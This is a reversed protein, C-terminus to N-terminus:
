IELLIQLKKAWNILKDRYNIRYQQMNGQLQNQLQQLNGKLQNQQNQLQQMNQNVLARFVNFEVRRVYLPNIHPGPAGHLAPGPAGGHSAGASPVVAARPAGAPPVGCSSAWVHM